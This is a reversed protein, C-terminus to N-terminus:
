FSYIYIYIYLGPCSEDTHNPNVLLFCSIDGSHQAKGFHKQRVFLFYNTGM